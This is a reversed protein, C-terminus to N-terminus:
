PKASKIEKEVIKIFNESWPICINLIEIGEFGDNRSLDKIKPSKYFKAVAKGVEGYGLVGIKKNLLCCYCKEEKDVLQECSGCNFDYYKM